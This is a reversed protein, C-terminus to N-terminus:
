KRSRWAYALLGIVGTGLLVLAGPEPITDAVPTQFAGPALATNTLKIFDLDFAGHYAPAYLGIRLAGTSSGIGSPLGLGTTQTVQVGDQYLTSTGGAASADYTWAVHHWNGDNLTDKPGRQNVVYPPSDFVNELYHEPPTVSYKGWFRLWWQNNPGTATDNSVFPSTDMSGNATRVEAEITFSNFSFDSSGPVTVYNNNPSTTFQLAHSNAVPGAIRDIAGTVVTGDHVRGNYDQITSGVAAAVGEEAEGFQWYGVVTAFTTAQSVGLVVIACGLLMTVRRFAFM